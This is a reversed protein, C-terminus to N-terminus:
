EERARRGRGQDRGHVKSQDWCLQQRYSWWCDTPILPNLAHDRSTSALRDLGLPLSRVCPTPPGLRVSQAVALEWHRLRALGLGGLGWSPGLPELFQGHRLSSCASVSAVM